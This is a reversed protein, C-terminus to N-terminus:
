HRNDCLIYINKEPNGILSISTCGFSEYTFGFFVSPKNKFLTGTYQMPSNENKSNEFTLEAMSTSEGEEFDIDKLLTKTNSDLIILHNKNLLYYDMKDTSFHYLATIKSISLNKIETTNPFKKPDIKKWIIPKIKNIQFPNEKGIYVFSNYYNPLKDLPLFRELDFGILYDLQSVPSDAGYVSIHAMVPLENVQFTYTTDLVYNYIFVKDSENIKSISLFRARHKKDLIHHEPTANNGLYNAAIVISDRHESYPFADTLSIFGTTRNQIKDYSGLTYIKLDSELNSNQISLADEVNLNKQVQETNIAIENLENNKCSYTSFLASVILIFLYNKM